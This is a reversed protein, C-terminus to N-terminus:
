LGVKYHLNIAVECVGCVKWYLLMQGQMHQKKESGCDERSLSKLILVISQLVHYEETEKAVTDPIVGGCVSLCIHM